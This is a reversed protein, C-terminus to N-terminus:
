RLRRHEVGGGGAVIVDNVMQSPFLGHALVSPHADLWAATQVPDDIQSHQDAIVGGDPSLAADRLSVPQLARLTAQLGYRLLEVPVPPHLAPVLKHQDVIVVFREAAVAVVKERLHAGGGGKVLWGDRAVQDAGDIVIDLADLADFPEVPLGAARAQVETAISTAVCRLGTLRREALAPLLHRVTSGTGLGVRMGDTVLQAATEAAARKLQEVDM